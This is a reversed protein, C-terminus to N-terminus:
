PKAGAKAPASADNMQIKADKKLDEKLKMFVQQQKQPMIGAKIQEKVEEFPKTGAARKGTLKIIHYGFQSKIIGSVQGEKLAFAAKEFVPVMNGKGFWGLDGGQAASSDLSKGKALDEFRAGKKLEDLLAQAEPQSKVLIHSARIQEPAKFKDLNQSYLKKLDEDSIKSESEVKKRLYTDVVVRKRLEKLKEDVEKDKDIGEKAAKQLILERMVLTDIIEQRGQPTAAMGRLYDPLSKVENDLETSTIATGNVTVLVTGKKSDSSTESKGCACLGACLAILVIQKTLSRM